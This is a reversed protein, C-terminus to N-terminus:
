TTTTTTTATTPPVRRKITDTVLTSPKLHTSPLPCSDCHRLSGGGMVREITNNALSPRQTTVRAQQRRRLKAARCLQTPNLPSVYIPISPHAIRSFGIHVPTPLRSRLLGLIPVWNPHELSRHGTPLLCVPLLPLCRYAPPRHKLHLLGIISPSSRCDTAILRQPLIALPQRRV